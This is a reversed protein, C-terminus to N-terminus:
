DQRGVGAAETLGNVALISINLVRGRLDVTYDLFGDCLGDISSPLPGDSSECSNLKLEASNKRIWSCEGRMM